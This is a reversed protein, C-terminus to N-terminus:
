EQNSLKDPHLLQYARLAVQLAIRNEPNIYDAGLLEAIKELRYYLSQRVIFLKQAAIQKSGDYDLYVKLTRILESGRTADHEMLPGLYSNVFSELMDKNEINFLLQFVGLEEFFLVPKKFCPYLSISRIAEQYSLHAHILKVYSRGIGILLELDGLREDTRIKHLSEFVQQLRVKSPRKPNQDIAVVILRNNKLTILPLFAHQEFISRLMMSLHFGISEPGEEVASYTSEDKQEFEILCVRYSAENLRKFDTGTLSKIQEEDKIRVHLLDDVWLNETYLKREEMYRKRLLDQAISLSASDLILYHYEQPPHDLVLVIYAWTKGLAGVAQLILTKNEYEWEFPVVHPKHDPIEPIKASLYDILSKQKHIPLVPHFSPQGQTPVYVIQAKTSTQLLKLVNTVGQSTLTLRHFERSISELEQLIKHHRNIIMSHLDQTIDVFRVTHEFIILPLNHRNAAEIMAEPVRDFAKGLEICLCSVNGKALQEVYAITSLEGSQLGMGTTLIMEEGHILQEFNPVELVHVWRVRRMLGEQGAVVKANHFLPRQLIENVTLIFETDM